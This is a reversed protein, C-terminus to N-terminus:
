RQNELYHRRCLPEYRDAGGVCIQETKEGVVLASFLAATGDGCRKCLATLKVVEDALPVLRLIDGFPRRDSDGDLGVVIVDKGDVEVAHVVFEYLDKFFQAEEIILLRAQSYMVSEKVGLLSVVGLAKLFEQDHTKVETVSDQYRTDLASTLVLTNWGLIRARRVKALIASSKGAFMPGLILTLHM